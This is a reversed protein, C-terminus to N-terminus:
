KIFPSIHILDPFNGICIINYIRGYGNLLCFFYKNESKIEQLDDFFAKAEPSIRKLHEENSFSLHADENPDQLTDLTDNLDIQWGNFALDKWEDSEVKIKVIKWWDNLNGQADKIDNGVRLLDDFFPYSQIFSCVLLNIKDYSKIIDLFIKHSYYAILQLISKPLILKNQKLSSCIILSQFLDFSVFKNFDINM